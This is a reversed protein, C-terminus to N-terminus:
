SGVETAGNIVPVELGDPVYGIVFEVVYDRRLFAKALRIQALPVGSHSYRAIFFIIKTKM